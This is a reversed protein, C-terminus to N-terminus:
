NPSTPCCIVMQYCVREAVDRGFIVLMPQHANFNYHAVNTDNKICLKTQQWCKVAYIKYVLWTYLWLKYQIYMHSTNM